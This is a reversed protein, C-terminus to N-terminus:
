SESIPDGGLKALDGNITVGGDAVLVAGNIYSSEDSALFLATKAIEEPAGYRRLPARVGLFRKEDFYPSDDPNSNRMMATMIAAPAICNVRVGRPGYEVAMSRTLAVTAGKSATYADCRPIGVVAASSATNIVSGGGSRIMLPIAHRCCHFVSDLNISIIKHWIEPKLETVPADKDGWYVSANNYLVHLAGHRRDVAAFAAAVSADDSVDCKVFIGKGGAAGIAEEVEKGSKDDFELLYVTAGEAAFLEAASRGIGKGAGTVACIKNALRMM